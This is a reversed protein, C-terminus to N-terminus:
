RAPEETVSVVSPSPAEPPVRRVLAASGLTGVAVVATIVTWPLLAGSAVLSTGVTPGATGEIAWGMGFISLYKGRHEERALKLSVVFGCASAWMETVTLMITGTALLVIAASRFVYHSSLYAGAAALMAVTAWGYARPADRLETVRRSFWLQCTVVLVTNFTFLLGVLERPAHTHDVVWLPLIVQLGVQNFAILSGLLALAVYRTDALVTWITTTDTREDALPRAPPSAVGAVLMAAILYSAANAYVALDFGIGGAALALTSLLGGAGFGFNRLSYQSAMVMALDGDESRGALWTTSANWGMGGFVSGVSQVLVLMPLSHVFVWSGEAAAAVLLALLMARKAGVVDILQGSVPALLFSVGGGITLGLGVTTARMHMHLTFFLIGLPIVTGSGLADLMTASALRPGGLRRSLLGLQSRM